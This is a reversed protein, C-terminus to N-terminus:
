SKAIRKSHNLYLNLLHCFYKVFTNAIQTMIVFFETSYKANQNVKFEMTSYVCPREKQEVPM